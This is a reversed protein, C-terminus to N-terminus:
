KFLSDIIDERPKFSSSNKELYDKYAKCSKNHGCLTGCFFSGEKEIDKAVWMDEQEKPMSEISSVTDTLFKVLMTRTRTDLPFEIFGDEIVYKDQIHKPLSEMSNEQIARELATEIQFENYDCKRLDKLLESKLKEVFKNRESFMTRPKTAGEFKITCYKLMNWKVAKIPVGFEKELAMAYLVLQFGHEDLDKASYKTSTKYDVVEITGDHNLLIADIYGMLVNGNIECYFEKELLVKKCDM